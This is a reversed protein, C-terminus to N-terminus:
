RISYYNRYLKKGKKEAAFKFSEVVDYKNRLIKAVKRAENKKIFFLDYGNEVDKAASLNHRGLKEISKLIDERRPGRVQVVAEYYKGLQKICNDCKKKGIIVLIKREETKEKKCPKITGTCIITALFKNGFPKLYIDIRKIKNKTSISSIIKKKVVGEIDKENWSADSYSGCRDCRNIRINGIEFLNHKGLYHEECFNSTHSAAGSRIQMAPKGCKICFMDSM